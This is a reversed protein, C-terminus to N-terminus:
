VAKGDLMCVGLYFKSFSTPKLRILGLTPLLPREATTKIELVHFPLVAEHLISGYGAHCAEATIDYDLTIRYDYLRFRDRHYRIRVAPILPGHQGALNSIAQWNADKERQHSLERWDPFHGNVAIPQLSAKYKSVGYLEKRKYHLARFSGDGYGRIRFKEKVPEGNACHQYCQRDHTDYYVSDVCGSPFPDSGGYLTLLLSRVYEFNEQTVLYKYEYYAM